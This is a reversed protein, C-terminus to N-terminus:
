PLEQPPPQSYLEKPSQLSNLESLSRLGQVESSYQLSHHEGQNYERMQAGNNNMNEQNLSAHKSIRRRRLFLYAIVVFLAFGAMTGITTGAIAGASMASEAQIPEPSNSQTLSPGETSSSTTSSSTTSSTTGSTTASITSSTVAPLMSTESATAALQMLDAYGIECRVNDEAAEYGPSCRTLRPCCANATNPALNICAVANASDCTSPQDAYCNDNTGNGVCCWGIGLQQTCSPYTQGKQIGLINTLLHHEQNRIRLVQLM